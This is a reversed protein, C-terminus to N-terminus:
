ISTSLSFSKPTQDKDQKHNVKLNLAAIIVNREQSEILALGVGIMLIRHEYMMEMNKRTKESYKGMLVCRSVVPSAFNFHHLIEKAFSPGCKIIAILLELARSVHDHTSSFALRHISKIFEKTLRRAVIISTPM